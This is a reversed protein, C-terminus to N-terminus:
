SLACPVAPVVIVQGCVGIQKAGAFYRSYIILRSGHVNPMQFEFHASDFADSVAKPRQRGDRWMDSWGKADPDGCNGEPLLIARDDEDLAKGEVKVSLRLIGPILEQNQKLFGCESTSQGFLLSGPGVQPHPDGLQLEKLQGDKKFKRTVDYLSLLSDAGAPQSFPPFKDLYPASLPLVDPKEHYYKPDISVGYVRINQVQTEVDRLLRPSWDFMTKERELIWSTFKTKQIALEQADLTKNTTHQLFNLLISLHPYLNIGFSRRLEKLMLNRDATGRQWAANIVWVITDVTRKGENLLNKMTKDWLENDVEGGRTDGRGPTDIWEIPPLMKADEFANGQVRM